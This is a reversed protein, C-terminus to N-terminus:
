QGYFSPIPSNFYWTSKLKKSKLAEQWLISVVSNNGLGEWTGWHLVEGTGRASERRTGLAGEVGPPAGKPEEVRLEKKDVQWDTQGAGQAEKEYNRLKLGM